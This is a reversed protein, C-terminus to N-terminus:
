RASPPPQAGSGADGDAAPAGCGPDRGDRFPSRERLEDLYGDIARGERTLFDDVASAFEPQALWHASVTPVPEFGRAMKHEGQAGGEVIALGREIAAEIAQYYCVEFHLCPVFETSGWYRGYLRDDDSVLLSSAIRRGNRRAVVLTMRDPMRRGVERFFQLNLYPTSHHEAYTNDYCHAFFTWDDEQISAGDLREISVGADAVKRREARIKKRKPQSMAALFADFDPYGRNNWHFQVGRRLMMGAAELLRAERETPFLVHLSSVPPSRRRTTRLAARSTDSAARAHAVLGQALAQRAPDDAALLRPGAVPTFPVAGLLKPYYSLGHRRYADAWAWDFVYEGYSHSKLYLPCVGRIRGDSDSVSLHSVIWGTGPGVCGAQELSSLFAHSVFPQPTSGGRAAAALGDWTEAAIEDIGAHVRLRYEITRANTTNPTM